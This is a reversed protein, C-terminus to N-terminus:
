NLNYTAANRNGNSDVTSVVVNKTDGLNRFTITTTGGGSTKGGMVAILLRLAQRMTVSAEVGNAQDLIANAIANREATTLQLGVGAVSNTIETVADAALVSANVANAALTANVTPTAATAATTVSAKMTATLDGNTPANTLNTVTTITGGTINTPTALGTQIETVADAALANANITNTAAAGISADFRGAVLVNPQVGRLYNLDSVPFGAQAEAAVVRFSGVNSAGALAGVTASCEVTYMTGVAFGNAVTVPATWRYRGTSRNVANATYTATSSGPAFASCSPTADANTLTGDTPSYTTFLVPVNGNLPVDQAQARTGAFWFVLISCVLTKM